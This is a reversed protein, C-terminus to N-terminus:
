DSSILSSHHNELIIIEHTHTETHTLLYTLLQQVRYILVKYLNKDDVIYEQRITKQLTRNVTNGLNDTHTAHQLETHSLLLIVM